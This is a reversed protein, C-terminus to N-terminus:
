VLTYSTIIPIWFIKGDWNVEAYASTNILPFLENSTIVIQNQQMIKQSQINFNEVTIQQQEDSKKWEILADVMNQLKKIREEM